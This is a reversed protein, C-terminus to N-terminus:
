YRKMITIDSQALLTKDKLNLAKHRYQLFSLEIAIILVGVIKGNGTLTLIDNKEILTTSIVANKATIYFSSNKVTHKLDCTRARQRTSKKGFICPWASNKKWFLPLPFCSQGTKLIIFPCQGGPMTSCRNLIMQGTHQQLGRNTSLRVTKLTWFPVLTQKVDTASENTETNQM